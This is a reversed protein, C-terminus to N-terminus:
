SSVPPKQSCRIERVIKNIRCPPAKSLTGPSKVIGPSGRSTLLSLLDVAFMLARKFRPRAEGYHKTIVNLISCLVVAGLVVWQWNTALWKM